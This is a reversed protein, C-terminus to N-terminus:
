DRGEDWGFANRFLEYETQMRVEGDRRYISLVDFRTPPEAPFSRLYHRALRRLSQRKAHNVSAEAAAVARTSRTKVEVFCLVDGEWAVLDLDGPVKASRWGQAIVVFGSKRLHFFAAEEGWQGTALHAAKAPTKGAPSVADVFRLAAQWTHARVTESILPM